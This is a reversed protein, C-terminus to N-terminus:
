WILNTVAAAAYFSAHNDAFLINGSPKARHWGKVDTGYALIGCGFTVTLSPNVVENISLGDLGFSSPVPPAQGCNFLYSNGVWGFLNFTTKDVSRGQDAPCTVTGETLGYHNLPRDTSNFINNQAAGIQNNNTRGAWV